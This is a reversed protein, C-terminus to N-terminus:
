RGLEQSAIVAGVVIAGAGAAVAIPIWTSPELRPLGPATEGTERVIFDGELPRYAHTIGEAVQRGNVLIRARWPAWQPSSVIYYAIHGGPPLDLVQEYTLERAVYGIIIHRMRRWFDPPPYRNISLGHYRPIRDGVARSEIRIKVRM